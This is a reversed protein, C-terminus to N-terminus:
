SINNLCYNCSLFKLVVQITFLAKKGNILNVDRLFHLIIKLKNFITYEQVTTGQIVIAKTLLEQNYSSGAFYLETFFSTM